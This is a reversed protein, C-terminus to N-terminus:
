KLWEKKVRSNVEEVAQLLISKDTANMLERTDKPVCKGQYPGKLPDLHDPTNRHDAVVAAMVKAADAGVDDCIRKIENAFSVKTAIIANHALKMVEASRHDIAWMPCEVWSFVKVVVDIDSRKGSVILRDPHMFWIINSKERLFEPAYVLRLNKYTREADAMFGIGITSKIVVVGPYKIVNLKYLVQQVISNDLRGARENTPVCIIVADTSILQNFSGEGKIDYGVVDHYFSLGHKVARGVAGKSGIVGVKM